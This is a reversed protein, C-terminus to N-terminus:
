SVFAKEFARTLRDLIWRRERLTYGAYHITPTNNVDLIYLRGDNRDRGMDLEGYDLGMQRCFHLCKEIEDRSCVEDIRTLEAKVSLGFRDDLPKYKLFVFPIENKFVPVRIDVVYGDGTRNDILKQYFRNEGAAHVPGELIHGDHKGNLNSKEVLVGHHTRPDLMTSYGFIQGFTTDVHKKSIDLCNMNIVETDEALDRLQSDIEAFTTDQWRICLQHHKDPDSTMRYGLRHCIEILTYRWPLVSPHDPHFLINHPKGRLTRVLKDILDPRRLYAQELKDILVKISQRARQPLTHRFYNFIITRM